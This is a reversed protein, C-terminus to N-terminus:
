AGAVTDIINAGATKSIEQGITAQCDLRAFSVPDQFTQRVQAVDQVRKVTGNSVQVPM